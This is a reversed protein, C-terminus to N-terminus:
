QSTPPASLSLTYCSGVTDDLNHGAGTWMGIVGISSGWGGLQVGDSVGRGRRGRSPIAALTWRVDGSAVMEVTGHVRTLAPPRTTTYSDGVVHITPRGPWAAPARTYHSIRLTLPIIRMRQFLAPHPFRQALPLC